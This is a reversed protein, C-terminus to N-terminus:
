TVPCRTRSIAAPVPTRVLTRASLSSDVFSDDRGIEVFWHEILRESKLRPPTAYRKPLSISPLKWDGVHAEAKGDTFESNPESLDFPQRSAHRTGFGPFEWVM